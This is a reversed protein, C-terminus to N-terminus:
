FLRFHIKFAHKKQKKISIAGMRFWGGVWIQIFGYKKQKKEFGEM